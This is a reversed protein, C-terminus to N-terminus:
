INMALLNLIRGYCLFDFFIVNTIDGFATRKRTVPAKNPSMESVSRKGTRGKVKKVLNPQIEMNEQNAKLAQLLVFLYM